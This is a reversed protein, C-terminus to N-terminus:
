GLKKVIQNFIEDISLNGDVTLLKGQKEYYEILPATQKVYVEIRKTVTEENDDDRLILPTQCVECTERGNLTTVHYSVGCKPCVRRGTIRKILKTFDVDINLVVDIKSFKDLEIAQEVNRPFGDLLYGQNKCDEQELREKVIEVTVDNPVLQGKDIFTKAIKGIDTSNKINERFIDGTSIHLLNYKASLRKAQTGKGAGPAGLLIVQM